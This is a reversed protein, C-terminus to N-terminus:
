VRVVAQQGSILLRNSVQGDRLEQTYITRLTQYLNLGLRRCTEILSLIMPRFHDGRHSQSFFSIKRWIVYPRLSREAANNTLPVGPYSLFIWLRPFDKLLKRCSNGTKTKGHILAGQELQTKFSQSIAGLGFTLRWQEQLLSEIQRLTLRYRGNILNIWAILGPGMAEWLTLIAQHSEELTEPLPSSQTFDLPFKSM